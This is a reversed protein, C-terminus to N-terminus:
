RRRSDNAAHLLTFELNVMYKVTLVAKTFQKSISGLRDSDSLNGSIVFLVVYSSVSGIARFIEPNSLMNSVADVLKFSKM